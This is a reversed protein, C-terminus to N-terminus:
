YKKCVLLLMHAFLFNPLIPALVFALGRTLLWSIPFNFEHHLCRLIGQRKHIPSIKQIEFGANLVEVAIESKSFRYQYFRQNIKNTLPRKFTGRICQRLNDHPVTIFMLGGPKLVRYAERLCESPGSEFHEFVGWSYYVHFEESRFPLDRIDSALFQHNPFRENLFGITKKSLDVGITDYGEDSFKLVWDGLGCGGDVLKAGKPLQKLWPQMAKYEEQKKVRDVNYASQNSQDWVKTWFSEVFDTETDDQTETEIYDKRM